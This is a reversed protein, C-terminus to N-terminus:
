LEFLYDIEVNSGLSNFYEKLAVAEDLWWKKKGNLKNSLSTSSIGIAEALKANTVKYYAMLARIRRYM